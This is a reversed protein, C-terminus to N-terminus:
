EICPAEGGEAPISLTFVTGEGPGSRVDFSFREGYRLRARRLALSIGMGAGSGGGEEAARALAAPDAAFGPGSDSISILLRGGEMRVAIGLRGGGAAGIGHVLANEVLPQVLLKPVRCSLAAEDVEYAVELKDGLTLKHIDVYTRIAALDERLSVLSEAPRDHVSYRLVKAMSTLISAAKDAEGMRMMWKAADITNYIFHPDLQAQLQKMEAAKALEIREMLKAVTSEMEVILANLRVAIEEFEDGSIVDLRASFDGQSVRGMTALIDYMPRTLRRVSRTMVLAFVAAFLGLVVGITYLGFRFSSAIFEISALGYVALGHRGVERRAYAFRSGDIAAEGGSGSLAFRDFPGFSSGDYAAVVRDFENTIVFRGTVREGQGQSPSQTGGLAIDATLYGAIRGDAGLVATGLSYDAQFLEGYRTTRLYGTVSAPQSRVLGHLGWSPDFPGSGGPEGMTDFAASGDAREGRLAAKVSRGRMAAYIEATVEPAARSGPASLAAAVAPDSRLRELLGDYAALDSAIRGAIAETSRAVDRVIRERVYANWAVFLSVMLLSAPLVVTLFVSRLIKVRLTRSFRGM